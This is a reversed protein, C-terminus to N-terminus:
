AAMPDAVEGFMRADRAALRNSKAQDAALQALWADGVRRHGRGAYRWEALLVLGPSPEVNAPEPRHAATWEWRRARLATFTTSYSLSKTLFHGRYGLQGAMVAVRVLRPARGLSRAAAILAPVHEPLGDPPPGTEPIRTTLLGLDESAKTAYKALYGCISRGLPSPRRGRTPEDGTNETGAPGVLRQVHLQEGWFLPPRVTGDPGVLAEAPLGEPLPLRAERVGDAVAGALLAVTFRGDIEQKGDPADLRAILHYHIVGRRQFEAIKVFSLRVHEALRGPVDDRGAQPIRISVAAPETL